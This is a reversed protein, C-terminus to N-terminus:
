PEPNATSAFRVDFPYRGVESNEGRGNRGLVVVEYRGAKEVGPAGITLTSKVLESSVPLSWQVVAAPNQLEVIYSQYANQPPIDLPLLFPEGARVEISTPEAGRTASSVLAAAPLIRPARNEALAGKLAPYTVLNQYGVVILLIAMAPIAFATRWWSFGPSPRVETVIRGTRAGPNTLEIKGQALFVSGARVDMACDHCGFLHEEFEDMETPSLEDLLYKESAMLRNAESHDM